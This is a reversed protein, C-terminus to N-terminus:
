LKCFGTSVKKTLESSINTPFCCLIRRLKGFEYITLQCIFCLFTTLIFTEMCFVIPVVRRTNSYKVYVDTASKGNLFLYLNTFLDIQQNLIKFFLPIGHIKEITKHVEVTGNFVKQIILMTEKLNETNEFLKQLTGAIVSLFHTVIMIQVCFAIVYIDNIKTPLYLIVWVLLCKAKSDDCESLSYWLLTLWGTLMIFSYGTFLLTLQRYSKWELFDKGISELKDLRRRLELLDKQYLITFTIAGFASLCIIISDLTQALNVLTEYRIPTSNFNEYLWWCTLCYNSVMYVGVLFSGFVYKNKIEILHHCQSFIACLIWFPLFVKKYNDQYSCFKKKIKLM